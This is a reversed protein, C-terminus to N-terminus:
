KIWGRIKAIFEDIHFPKIIIDDFGSNILKERNFGLDHGTFAIVTVSERTFFNRISRVLSLGNIDPLSLDLLIIDPRIRELMDIGESGTCAHVVRCLGEFEHEAIAKVPILTDPDDDIVMLVFERNDAKEFQPSGREMVGTQPSVPIKLFWVARGDSCQSLISQGCVISILEDALSYWLLSTESLSASDFPKASDEHFKLEEDTGIGSVHLSINESDSSIRFYLSGTNDVSLLFETICSIIKKFSETDVPIESEGKEVICFCSISGTNRCASISNVSNEIVTKITAPAYSRIVKGNKNRNIYSLYDVLTLIKRGNREIVELYEREDTNLARLKEKLMIGSLNIVPNLSNKIEHSIYSILEASIEKKTEM